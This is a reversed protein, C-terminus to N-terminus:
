IKEFGLINSVVNKVTVTELSIDELSRLEPWEENSSEVEDEIEDDDRGDLMM